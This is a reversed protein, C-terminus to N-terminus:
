PQAGFRYRLGLATAGTLGRGTGTANRSLAVDLVAELHRSFRFRPSLGATLLLDRHRYDAANRVVATQTNTSDFEARTNSETYHQLELTLGGLADVQFRHALQRTLTYRVLLTVTTNRATSSGNYIFTKYGTTGTPSTYYGTIGSYNSTSSSAAGSLQVALRPTLQYGLTLQVPVRPGSYATGGLRQYDSSYAALGVYYLPVPTFTGRQAFGLGPVALLLSSALLRFCSM